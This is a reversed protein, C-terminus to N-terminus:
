LSSKTLPTKLEAKLSCAPPPSHGHPFYEHERTGAEPLNRIQLLALTMHTGPIHNARFLIDYDMLCISVLNRVFVM